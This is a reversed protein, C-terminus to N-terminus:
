RRRCDPHVDRKAATGAASSTPARVSAAQLLLGVGDDVPAVVVVCEPDDDWADVVVVAAGVDVSGGAAVDPGSVGPVAITSGNVASRTVAASLGSPATKAAGWSGVLGAGSMAQTTSPLPGAAMASCTGVPM